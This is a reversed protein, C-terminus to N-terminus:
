SLSKFLAVGTMGVGLAFTVLLPPNSVVANAITGMWEVGSALVTGVNTLFGSLAEVEM